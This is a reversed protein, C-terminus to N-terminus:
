IVTLKYRTYLLLALLALMVTSSLSKIVILIGVVNHM